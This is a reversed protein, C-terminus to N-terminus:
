PSTNIQTSRTEMLSKERTCKALEGKTSAAELQNLVLDMEMDLLNKGTERNELVLYINALVSVLFLLSIVLLADLNISYKKM